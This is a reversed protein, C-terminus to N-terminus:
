PRTVESRSHNLSELESKIQSVGSMFDDLAASLNKVNSRYNGLRSQCEEELGPSPWEASALECLVEQTSVWPTAKEDDFFHQSKSLYKSPIPSHEAQLNMDCEGLVQRTERKFETQTTSHTIANVTPQQTTIHPRATPRAALINWPYAYNKKAAEAAVAEQWRSEVVARPKFKSM